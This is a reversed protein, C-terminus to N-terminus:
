EGFILENAKPWFKNFGAKATEWRRELRVMWGGTGIGKLGATWPLGHRTLPTIRLSHDDHGWLGRGLVFGKVDIAHQEALTRGTNPDETYTRNVGAEVGGSPNVAATRLLYALWSGFTSLSSTDVFQSGSEAWVVAHPVVSVFYGSRDMHDTVSEAEVPGYIGNYEDHIWVVDYPWCREHGRLILTGRYMTRLGEALNSKACNYAQHSNNANPETVVRVVWDSSDIDDDFALEKTKEESSGTYIV